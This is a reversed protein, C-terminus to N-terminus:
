NAITRVHGRELEGAPQFEAALRELRQNYSQPNEGPAIPNQACLGHKFSNESSRQKGTESLPGHSLAGNARAAAAHAESIAPDLPGSGPVPTTTVQPILSM